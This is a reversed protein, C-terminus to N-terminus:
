VGTQGRDRQKQKMKPSLELAGLINHLYHLVVFYPENRKNKDMSMGCPVSVECLVHVVHKNCFVCIYISSTVECHLGFLTYACM